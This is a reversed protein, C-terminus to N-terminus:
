GSGCICGEGGEVNGWMCVCGGVCVDGGGVCVYGGEWVRVCVCMGGGVGGCVCKGWVCKGCVCVNGVCMGGGGGGGVCVCMFFRARDSKTKYSRPLSAFQDIKEDLDTNETEERQINKLFIKICKQGPVIVVWVSDILESRCRPSSLRKRCM